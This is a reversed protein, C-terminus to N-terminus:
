AGTGNPQDNRTLVESLQKTLAIGGLCESFFDNQSALRDRVAKRVSWNGENVGDAEWWTFPLLVYGSDYFPSREIVRVYRYFFGRSDM